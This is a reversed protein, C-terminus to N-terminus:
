KEKLFRAAKIAMDITQNLQHVCNCAANVTRANVEKNTVDKMMDHLHNVTDKLRFTENIFEIDQKRNLSVSSSLSMEDQTTPLNETGM